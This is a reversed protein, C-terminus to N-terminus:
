TDKSIHQIGHLQERWCFMQITFSEIYESGALLLGITNELM